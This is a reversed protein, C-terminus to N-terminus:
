IWIIARIKVSGKEKSQTPKETEQTQHRETNVEWKRLATERTSALFFLEVQM